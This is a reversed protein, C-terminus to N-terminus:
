AEPIRLLRESQGAFGTLGRLGTATVRYTAGRQVPAALELRVIRPPVPPPPAMAAPEPPEATVRVITLPLSDPGIVAFQAPFFEQAPDLPLDFSARLTVSDVVSLSVLRPPVSDRAFAALEVTLTDVLHVSLTDFAEGPDPARNRNADIVAQVTYPGPPLHALTFAGTTDAITVYVVSDPTVAQVLAAPAPRGAVWDYARGRVRTEPIPGGTSFVTVGGATSANGRLDSIGPLLTVTYITNPLWGRRPRVSVESRDWDVVPTGHEPSVIFLQALSTVTAPRESVVEDFRFVVSRPVTGVRGSDPAIQLLRPAAIDVPGGPPAGPNACAM